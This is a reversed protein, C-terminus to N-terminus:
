QVLESGTYPAATESYHHSVTFFGIRDVHGFLWNPAFSRAMALVVVSALFRPFFGIDSQFHRPFTIEDDTRRIFPKSARFPAIYHLRPVSSQICNCRECYCIDKRIKRRQRARDQCGFKTWLREIQLRIFIHQLLCHPNIPLLSSFPPPFALSDNGESRM